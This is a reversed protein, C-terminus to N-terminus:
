EVSRLWLVSRPEMTLRIGEAGADIKEGTFGNIFGQSRAPKLGIEVVKQNYNQLFYGSDQLRQITVRAPADIAPDGPGSFANRLINVCPDPLELLPSQAPCLLLEEAADFDAQSFTHTNIVFINRSSNYLLYPNANTGSLSMLVESGSSVLRFDTKMPMVLKNEKGGAIMINYDSHERILPWGTGAMAALKEGGAAKSLFGATMIIRVGKELSANIKKLIGTDAAAQTPLFVVGAGSPYSAAPVLSIGLM